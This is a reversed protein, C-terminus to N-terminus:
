YVQHTHTHMDLLSHLRDMDRITREVVFVNHKQDRIRILHFIHAVPLTHKDVVM